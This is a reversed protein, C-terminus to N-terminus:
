YEDYTNSCFLGVDEGVIWEGATKTEPGNECRVTMIEDDPVPRTIPEYIEVFEVPKMDYHNTHILNLATRWSRAFVCYWDGDNLTIRWMQLPKQQKVSRPIM